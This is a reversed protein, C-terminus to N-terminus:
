SKKVTHKKECADYNKACERLRMDVYYNLTDNEFEGGKNRKGPKKGTLIEVGEEVNKIGYIHFLGSKIDKLIDDNLTLDDINSYPIIVGHSGDLGWFKCIKYFGEIKENVGGVAQVQGMQNLSGTVAINQKVPIESLSSLIAYLEAVSASDGDIYGYLQEFCVNATISLPMNRAYKDGIYGSIIMVSKSHINGSMQVEREINIIGSKGMYTTATIKNPKGFSHGGIEIVSLGNVQGIAEGTVNVMIKNDKYQKLMREEISNIRNTKESIAKKVDMGRIFNKKDIGAWINSEKIIDILDELRTSMRKGTGALRSSYELLDLVAAKDLHRIGNTRCYQSIFQAVKYINDENKDMDFDFDVKIKFLENFSEDIEYLARYINESGIVVVKLNVPIPKPKITVISILDLQSRVGEPRIESSQLVRKLGEWAQYNKLMEEMNVILYGGNARLISGARIMLFDTFMTGQKSEYEVTGMLNSYTPNPEFVVPAGKMDSNDVLLNVKYRILLEEEERSASNRNIGNMFMYLNELIDNEFEEVYELVEPDSSYKCKIECVLKEIEFLGIKKDLEKIREDADNEAKKLKRLIDIAKNRVKGVNKLVADKDIAYMTDFETESMPKGNVLPIFAFGSDTGKLQLNNLQAIKNLEYVLDSKIDHYKETIDNKRRYYEESSFAQPMNKIIENILHEIEQKFVKGLGPKFSIAIPEYKNEFNYVYCWDCPISCKQAAEHLMKEAYYTKGSGRDGSIYINYGKENISLGFKMAREAREQGILQDSAEIEGTNKFNLARKYKENLNIIDEFTVECTKAMGVGRKEIKIYLIRQKM